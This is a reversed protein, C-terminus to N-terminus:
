ADRGVAKKHALPQATFFVGRLEFHRGYGFAEARTPSAGICRCTGLEIAVIAKLSVRRIALPSGMHGQQPMFTVRRFCM